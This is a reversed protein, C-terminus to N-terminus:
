ANSWVTKRALIWSFYVTKMDSFAMRYLKDFQIHEFIKIWNPQSNLMGPGFVQMKWYKLTLFGEFIWLKVDFQGIEIRFVDNSLDGRSRDIWVVHTAKSHMHVSRSAGIHLFRWFVCAWRVLFNMYFKQLRIEVLRLFRRSICGYAVNMGFILGIPSYVQRAFDDLM